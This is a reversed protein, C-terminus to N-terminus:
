LIDVCEVCMSLNSKIIVYEVYEVCETMCMGIHSCCLMQSCCLAFRHTNIYITHIYSQLVCDCADSQLVFAVRHTYNCINMEHCVNACVTVCVDSQLM